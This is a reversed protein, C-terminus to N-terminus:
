VELCSLTLVFLPRAPCDIIEEKVARQMAMLIWLLSVTLAAPSPSHPSIGPRLLRRVNGNLPNCNVYHLSAVTGCSGMKRGTGRKGETREKSM